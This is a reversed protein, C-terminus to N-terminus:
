EKKEIKLVENGGPTVQQSIVSLTLGRIKRQTTNRLSLDTHLDILAAGGTQTSRSESWDASVLTVPSDPPFQIRGSVSSGPLQALLSTAALAMVVFSNRM